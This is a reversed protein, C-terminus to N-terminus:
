RGRRRRRPGSGLVYGGEFIVTASEGNAMMYFWFQFGSGGHSDPPGWAAYVDAPSLRRSWDLQDRRRAKTTELDNLLVTTAWWMCYPRDLRQLVARTLRGPRTPEFSLWLWLQPDDGAGFRYTMMEGAPGFRIPPGLATVVQDFSMEATLDFGTYRRLEQAPPMSPPPGPESCPIPAALAPQPGLCAFGALAALFARAMVHVQLRSEGSRM